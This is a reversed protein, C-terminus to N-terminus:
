SKGSLNCYQTIDEDSESFRAEEGERIEVVFKQGPGYNGSDDKVSYDGCVVSMDGHRVEELNELKASEPNEIHKLAATKATDVATGDLMRIQSFAVWVLVLAIIAAFWKSKSLRM